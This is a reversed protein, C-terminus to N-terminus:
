CLCRWQAGISALVINKAVLKVWFFALFILNWTNKSFMCYQLKVQLPGIWSFYQGKNLNHTGTSEFYIPIFNVIDRSNQFIIICTEQSSFLPVYPIQAKQCKEILVSQWFHHKTGWPCMKHIHTKFYCESWHSLIVSWMLHWLLTSIDLCYM